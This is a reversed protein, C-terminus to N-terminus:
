CDGGAKMLKGKHSESYNWLKWCVTPPTTNTKITLTIHHYRKSALKLIDPPILPRVKLEFPGIIKEEISEEKNSAKVWSVELEEPVTPSYRSNKTNLIFIKLTKIKPDKNESISWNENKSQTTQKTINAMAKDNINASTNKLYPDSMCDGGQQLTINRPPSSKYDGLRWCFTVPKKGVLFMLSLDYGVEHSKNLVDAPIRSRVKITYPGEIDGRYLAQGQQPLKRWTVEVQEPVPDGSDPAFAGIHWSGSLNWTNRNVPSVEVSRYFLQEKTDSRIIEIANITKDVTNQVNYIVEESKATAVVAHSSGLYIFLTLLKSVAKNLRKLCM